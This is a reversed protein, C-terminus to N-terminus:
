SNVTLDWCTKSANWPKVGQKQLLRMGYELNQDPDTIDFGQNLAEGRHIENIQWYGYDTTGNRNLTTNHIFSLRSECNMISLAVIYSQGYEESLAITKEIVNREPLPVDDM